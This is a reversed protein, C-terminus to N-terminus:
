LLEKSLKERLNKLKEIEEHPVTYHPCLMMSVVMQKLQEDNLAKLQDMQDPDWGISIQLAILEGPECETCEARLFYQLQPREDRITPWAESVMKFDVM